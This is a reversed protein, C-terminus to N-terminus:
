KIMEIEFTASVKGPMGDFWKQLEKFAGEGDLCVGIDFAFEDGKIQDISLHYESFCSQTHKRISFHSTPPITAYGVARSWISM